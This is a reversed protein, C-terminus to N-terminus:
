HLPSLFETGVPQRECLRNFRTYHAVLAIAFGFTEERVKLTREPVKTKTNM